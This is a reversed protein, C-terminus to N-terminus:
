AVGPVYVTVCVIVSEPPRVAVVVVSAVTPAAKTVAPGSRSNSVRDPVPAGLRGTPGPPTTRSFTRPAPPTGADPTVATVSFM